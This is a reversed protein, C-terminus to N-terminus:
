LYMDYFEVFSSMHLIRVKSFPPMDAEVFAEKFRKAQTERSQQRAAGKGPSLVLDYWDKRKAFTPAEHMRMEYLYFFHMAVAGISCLEPTKARLAGAM